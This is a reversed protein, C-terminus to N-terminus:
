FNQRAINRTAGVLMAVSTAASAVLGLWPAGDGRFYSEASMANFVSFRAASHVLADAASYGRYDRM